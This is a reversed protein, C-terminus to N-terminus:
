ADVGVYAQLPDEHKAAGDASFRFRIYEPYRYPRFRLPHEEDVLEKPAQFLIEDKPRCGLILSYRTQNGTVRVRHLPAHM